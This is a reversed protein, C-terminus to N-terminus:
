TQMWRCITRPTREEWRPIVSVTLTHSLVLPLPAQKELHPRLRTTEWLSPHALTIIVMSSCLIDYNIAFLM